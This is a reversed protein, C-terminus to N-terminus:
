AAKEFEKKINPEITERVSKQDMSGDFVGILDPRGEAIIEQTTITAAFVADVVGPLAVRFVAIPSGQTAGKIRVMTHDLNMISM